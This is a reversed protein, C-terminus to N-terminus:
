MNKSHSSLDTYAFLLNTVRSKWNISYYKTKLIESYYEEYICINSYSQNKQWIKLSYNQCNLSFPLQMHLSMAFYCTITQFQDDITSLRITLIKMLWLRASIFRHPTPLRRRFLLDTALPRSPTNLSNFSLSPVQASSIFEGPTYNVRTVRACSSTTYVVRVIDNNWTTEYVRVYM